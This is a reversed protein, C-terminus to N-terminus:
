APHTTALLEDRLRDFDADIDLTRRPTSMAMLAHTADSTGATTQLWIWVRRERIYLMAFVGIMLLVAGLYVLTKGPSRVVQFVSAQVQDFGDLQFMLPAPYFLYDSLSRVAASMFAATEDSPELRKLGAKERALQNLEFLSGDLIRALIDAVKGQDAKPVTVDVFRSLADLGGPSAPNGDKVQEDGAYLTLARLATTHLQQTMEPRDSPTAMRAYRSAAAERMAPDSLAQRLRLWGDLRNNEDAPLRLYRFDDALSERVGVIFVRQGQLMMPQMYNHFERRQGAADVLRYVVAPGVNQLTKPKNPNAGSGLHKGLSEAFGSPQSAAAAPDDAGLNEVNIVKLKFLEISLSDTGSSLKLTDGVRGQLDFGQVGPKMAIAKLRLLSGGDDFSSQFITVGRHVLPENVKITAERSAGTDNDHIVVQSAFLKPMGTDYYEVIFKKLEVDFPLDQLVIGDPLNLVAVGARTGESVMLNGRYTPNTAPLRHDPTVDKLLGSGDFATKGQLLMQLRVMLDGDSLGGLCVLVIAAHAAIYGLKNARGTRAAVMIGNDRVQARAQWGRRALVASVHALAAEDTMPLVGEAKHHFARLSQERVGEKFTRLDSLIKPTNRAICLSTSLVLFALILLFWSASYVNFLGFRGYVEAWFPGFQNVYNNIPENQKVVTGIVSAVCIVSLLAVAFRMSSLLEYLDHVLRVRPARPASADISETM